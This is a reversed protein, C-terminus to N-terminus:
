RTSIKIKIRRNMITISIKLRLTEIQNEIKPNTRNWDVAKQQSRMLMTFQM